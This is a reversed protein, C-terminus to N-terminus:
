QRARTRTTPTEAPGGLGPFEKPPEANLLWRVFYDWRRRQVYRSAAGYGHRANPIMLLDFDKNAKILADVVELTNNPPVNDDLTGHMLLLKGKLNKAHTANSEETYNDTGDANKVLLGQYREGWDDEYHRNDHNGSEAIGVDFFDPYRFMAAATAFGGGSHGYIGVRTLDIFPYREALQKMGGIQDPLSNDGMHGYYADAFAKDRDPTSGMGDIAVVIFGLEALGQAEGGTVRFNRSGVSGTQPGPYIHNIIPYKRNSDLNSPTYMVGYINTTGDRGKMTVPTVPHWGAAVMRATSARALELVEAGTSTRRLSVVPAADIRSWTTTFYKGSPSYAPESHTGDDPTLAVLGSGDLKVRYYHRFYPDGEGAGLGAYSVQHTLSDVTFSSVNVQDRTIKNKLTGTTLDYLFLQAWGDRQSNWVIENRDWLVQWGGRGECQTACSESFVERVAGTATNAERVWIQKHDRSVSAFVIRDGTPSWKMDDMDINDGNISRHYDPAMQFRTMKGSDLDIVLREIMAVVSDGPLPYKWSQLTPHGGDPETSVLYMDGVQREDQRFTAVKRKDPSLLVVPRDSHTWGANNTAYGYNETGDTTLMKREGDVTVALNWNDIEFTPGDDRGRPSRPAVSDGTATCTKERLTCRWIARTIALDITANRSGFSLSDIPLHDADITSDLATSLATALAVHDFAAGKTRKTPDAVMFRWGDPTTERWTVRDDTQWTLQTVAGDLLDRAGYGSSAAVARTYDDATIQQQAQLPAAAPLAVAALLLSLRVPHM